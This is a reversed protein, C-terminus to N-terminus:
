VAGFGCGAPSVLVVAGALVATVSVGGTMATVTGAVAGAIDGRGPSETAAVAAVVATADRASSAIAEAM